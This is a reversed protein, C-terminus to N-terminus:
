RRVNSAVAKSNARVQVDITVPSDIVGTTIDVGGSFAAVNDGYGLGAKVHPQRLLTQVTTGPSVETSLQRVGYRITVNM